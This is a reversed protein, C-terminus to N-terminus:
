RVADDHAGDACGEYWRIKQTRMIKVLRADHLHLERQGHSLGELADIIPDLAAGSARTDDAENGAAYGHRTGM